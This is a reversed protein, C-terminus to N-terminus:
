DAIQGGCIHILGNIPHRPRTVQASHGDRNHM